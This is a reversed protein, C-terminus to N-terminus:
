IEDTIVGTFSDWEKAYEIAKPGMLSVFHSYEFKGEHSAVNQLSEIFCTCAANSVSAEGESIFKEILDFLAQSNDYEGAVFYKVVAGVILSLLSHSTIPGSEPVWYEASEVLVERAQPYAEILLPLVEHEKIM